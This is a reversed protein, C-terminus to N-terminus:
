IKECRSRPEPITTYKRKVEGVSFQVAKRALMYLPGLISRVYM